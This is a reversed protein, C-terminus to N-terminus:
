DRNKPLCQVADGTSYDYRWSENADRWAGERKARVVHRKGEPSLHKLDRAYFRYCDKYRAAEAAKKAARKPTCRKSAYVTAAIASGVMLALTTFM